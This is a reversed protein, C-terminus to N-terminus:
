FCKRKPAICTNKEVSRGLLQGSAPPHKTACGLHPLRRIKPGTAKGPRAPRDRAPRRHRQESRPQLAPRSPRTPRASQVRASEKSPNTALPKSATEIIQQQQQQQQQQKKQPPLPYSSIKFEHARFTHSESLHGMNIGSLSATAKPALGSDVKM